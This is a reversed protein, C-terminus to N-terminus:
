GLYIFLDVTNTSVNCKALREKNDSMYVAIFGNMHYPM